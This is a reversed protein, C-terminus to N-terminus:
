LHMSQGFYDPSWMHRPSLGQCSGTPLGCAPTHGTREAAGAVAVGKYARLSGMLM